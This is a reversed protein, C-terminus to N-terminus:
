GGGVFQVVEVVDGDAISTTELLARPVVVQNLEVAINQSELSFERLLAMVTTSQVKRVEGNFRIGISEVGADSNM